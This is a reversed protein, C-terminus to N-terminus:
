ARRLLAEVRLRLFEGRQPLGAGLRWGRRGFRGRLRWGVAILLWRLRQRDPQRKV